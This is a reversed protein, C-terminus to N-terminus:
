SPTRCPPGPPSMTPRCRSAGSTRGPTTTTTTTTTLVSGASKLREHWFAMHQLANGTPTGLKYYKWVKILTWKHPRPASRGCRLRSRWRSGRSTPTTAPGRLPPNPPPRRPVARSTWAARHGGTWRLAVKWSHTTDSDVFRDFAADIVGLRRSPSLVPDTWPLPQGRCFSDRGYM